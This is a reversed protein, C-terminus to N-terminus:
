RKGICYIHSHYMSQFKTAAKPASSIKTQQDDNHQEFSILRREDVSHVRLLLRMIKEPIM